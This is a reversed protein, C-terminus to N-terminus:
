PCAKPFEGMDPFLGVYAELAKKLYLIRALPHLYRQAMEQAQVAVQPVRVPARAPQVWALVRSLSVFVACGHAACCSPASRIHTSPCRM